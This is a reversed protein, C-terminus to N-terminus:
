TWCQLMRWKRNQEVTLAPSLQVSHGLQERNETNTGTKEGRRHRRPGLVRRRLRHYRRLPEVSARTSAILNEVVSTPINNGHLAADLTTAYGRARAHFWDRQLVGNYLSAYTNQKDAYAQHFARYAAARDEQRRENGLHQLPPQRLAVDRPAPLHTREDRGREEVQATVLPLMALEPNPRGTSQRALARYALARVADAEVQLCDPLDYTM